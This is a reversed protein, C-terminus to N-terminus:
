RPVLNRKAIEVKENISYGAIEIIDMRDLLPASITDLRNATTIFMVNSLDFPISLYHDTFSANQVPDLVELLASAPDGRVVDRGVKDIEDLLIVPNKSNCKKLAHLIVGAM